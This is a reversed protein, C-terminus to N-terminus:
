WPSASSRPATPARCWTGGSWSSRATRPRAGARGTSAATTVPSRSTTGSPTSRATPCVPPPCRGTRRSTSPSSSPCSARSTRPPAATRGATCPSRSPLALGASGDYESSTNLKTTGAPFVTDKTVQCTTGFNDTRSPLTLDETNAGEAAEVAFTGVAACRSVPTVKLQYSGAPLELAYGGDDATTATVPAGTVEITAGAEPGGQTRVTGTLTARPAVGLAADRTTTAGETVTATSTSTVYGFKSVKVAYDGVMVKPLAYTGDEGTTATAYMPGDLEVTAGALPSGDTTVTGSVAGLPGRPTANVAAYADLRGEGYVNNNAATGGCTTDDADIATQDLLRETAAIDGRIAPSVSWMLAVTAATHPSAM